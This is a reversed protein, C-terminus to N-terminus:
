KTKGAIFTATDDIGGIDDAAQANPAKGTTAKGPDSDRYKQLETELEAIKADKDKLEVVARRYGAHTMMMVADHAAREEPSMQARENLVKKSFELGKSFATSAEQNDTDGFLAPLNKILESKEFDLTTEYVKQAEKSQIESQTRNAEAQENAQQMADMGERRIAALTNRHQFFVDALDGFMAKARAIQDRLPLRLLLEFDQATAPRQNEGDQVQLQSIEAVAEQKAHDYRDLFRKKFEPSKSYDLEAITKLNAKLSENLEKIQNEYQEIKKADGQAEVPKSELAKVKDQLSKVLGDTKKVYFEHLKYAKSPGQKILEAVEAQTMETLLKPKPKSATKEPSEAPAPTEPSEPTEPTEPPEAPPTAPTAKSSQAIERAFEAVASTGTPSQDTAPPSEVAAPAEAM